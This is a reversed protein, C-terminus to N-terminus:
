RPGGRKAKRRKALAKMHRPDNRKAERRKREEEEPTLPRPRRNYSAVAAIVRDFEADRSM